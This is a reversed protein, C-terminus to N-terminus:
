LTSSMFEIMKNQPNHTHRLMRFPREENDIKRLTPSTCESQAHMMLLPKM